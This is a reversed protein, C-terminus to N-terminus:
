EAAGPVPRFLPKIEDARKWAPHVGKFRGIVSRAAAYPAQLAAAKVRYAGALQKVVLEQQSYVAVTYQQSDRGAAAIRDALDTLAAILTLYEAESTDQAAPHEVLAQRHRGDRAWLHYQGSGGEKGARSQLVLVYDAAGMWGEPLAVPAAPQAIPTAVALAPPAPAASKVASLASAGPMEQGTAAQAARYRAYAVEDFALAARTALQDAAENYPNDAHGKVWEVAVGDPWAARAAQVLSDYVPWLDTNKKRQWLGKGCNIVYTSDSWITAHRATAGQEGLYRLALLAALVGAIEARNNSTAPERQRAPVFGGLDLRTASLPRLQAAAAAPGAFGVVVAAFGAPGGPNRLPASGDTYVEVVRCAALATWTAAEDALSAAVVQQVVEWEPAAAVAFM